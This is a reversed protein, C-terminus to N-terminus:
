TVASEKKLIWKWEKEDKVGINLSSYIVNVGLYIELM